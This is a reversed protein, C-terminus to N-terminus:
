FAALYRASLNGFIPLTLHQLRSVKHVEQSVISLLWQQLLLKSMLTHTLLRLLCPWFLPESASSFTSVLTLILDMNTLDQGIVSHSLASCQNCHIITTWLLQIFVVRDCGANLRSQRNIFDFFHSEDASMISESIRSACWIRDRLLISILCLKFITSSPFHLHCLRLHSCWM